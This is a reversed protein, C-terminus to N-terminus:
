ANTDLVLRLGLADKGPEVGFARKTEEHAIAGLAANGGAVHEEARASHRSAGFRTLGFEDEDGKAAHALDAHIEVDIAVPRLNIALPENDVHADGEAAFVLGADVDNQGVDGKEFGLARIEQAENESVGMFVMEASDGVEPRPEAIDGDVGRGKGRRHQFRLEGIVAEALVKRQANNRKAVAALDTGKSISSTLMDCEIGSGEAITSLVSSPVTIWEPSQFSSSVGSVLAGM